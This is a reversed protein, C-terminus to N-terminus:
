HTHSDQPPVAPWTDRAPPREPAAVRPPETALHQDMLARVAPRDAPGGSALQALLRARGALQREMDTQERDVRDAIEPMVGWAFHELRGTGDRAALVAPPRRQLHGAMDREVPRLLHAAALHGDPDLVVVMGLVRLEEETLGVAPGSLRELADRLSSAEMTAALADTSKVSRIVDVLRRGWLEEAGIVVTQIAPLESPRLDMLADVVETRRDSSPGVVLVSTRGELLVWLLAGLEADLAGEAILSPLSTM